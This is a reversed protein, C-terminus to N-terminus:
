EDKEIQELVKKNQVSRKTIGRLGKAAGNTAAAPKDAEDSGLGPVIQDLVAQRMKAADNIAQLKNSAAGQTPLGVDEPRTPKGLGAEIEDLIAQRSEAERNIGRINAEAVAQAGRRPDKPAGAVMRKYGAAMAADIEDRYITSAALIAFLLFLLFQRRARQNREARVAAADEEQLIRYHEAELERMHAGFSKKYWKDAM